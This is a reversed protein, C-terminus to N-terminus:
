RRRNAEEPALQRALELVQKRDRGSQIRLFVKMLKIGEIIATKSPPAPPFARLRVVNPPLDGRKRKM